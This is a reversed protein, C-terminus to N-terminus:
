ARTSAYMCMYFPYIYLQKTLPRNVIRALLAATATPILYMNKRRTRIWNKTNEATWISMTSRIMHVICMHTYVPLSSCVHTNITETTRNSTKENEKKKWVIAGIANDNLNIRCATVSFFVLVLQQKKQRLEKQVFTARILAMPNMYCENGFLKKDM